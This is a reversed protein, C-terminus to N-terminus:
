SPLPVFPCWHSIGTIRVVQSASIPLILTWPCGLCIIQSVGMKLTILAFHVPPTSWSISYRSQLHPAQTWVGTQLFSFMFLNATPMTGSLVRHFHWLLYTSHCLLYRGWPMTDSAQLWLYQPILSRSSRSELGGKAFLEHSGWRSWYFAPHPPV